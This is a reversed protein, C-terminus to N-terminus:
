LSGEPNSPKPQKGTMSNAPDSHREEDTMEPRGVSGKEETDEEDAKNQTRPVLYQDIGNEGTENKRREAEQAADLGYAELMTQTSMVGSTWLKTCAEQFKADGALDTPPFTFKPINTAKSHPLIGNVRQNIKNMMQAFNDRGTKIRLAATQMSVQATAFTSGDGSIGSVIIGSIGGGALIDNNVDKYKDFEFLKDTDATIFQAEVWHNTM